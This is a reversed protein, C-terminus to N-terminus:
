GWRENQQVGDKEIQGVTQAAAWGKKYKTTCRRGKKYKTTSGVCMAQRHLCQEVCTGM